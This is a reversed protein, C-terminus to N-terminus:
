CLPLAWIAFLLSFLATAVLRRSPARKAEARLLAVELAARQPAPLRDFLEPGVNRLLDTLGAFALKAESRGPRAFLVTTGREGARRVAERWLTTKGIGPAGIIALAALSTEGAALSVDVVALEAERGVLVTV